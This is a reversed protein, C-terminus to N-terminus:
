DMDGTFGHGPDIKKSEFHTVGDVECFDSLLVFYNVADDFSLDHPKLVYEDLSYGYKRGAVLEKVCASDPHFGLKPRLAHYLRLLSAKFSIGASGFERNGPESIRVQNVRFLWYNTEVWYGYITHKVEEWNPMGVFTETLKGEFPAAVGVPPVSV